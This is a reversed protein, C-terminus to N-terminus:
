VRSTVKIRKANLIAQKVEFKLITELEAQNEM